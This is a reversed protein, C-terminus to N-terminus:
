WVSPGNMLIELMEDIMRVGLKAYCSEALSVGGWKAHLESLRTGILFPDGRVANAEMEIEGETIMTIGEIKKSKALERLIDQIRIIATRRDATGYGFNPGEM